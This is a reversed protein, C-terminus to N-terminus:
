STYADAPFISSVDRLLRRYEPMGHIYFKGDMNMDIDVSKGNIDMSIDM